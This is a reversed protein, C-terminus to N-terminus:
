YNKDWGVCQFVHEECFIREWDTGGVCAVGTTGAFGHFSLNGDRTPIALRPIALRPIALRPRMNELQLAQAYVLTWPKLNIHCLAALVANRDLLAALVYPPRFLGVLPAICVLPGLTVARKVLGYSRISVGRKGPIHQVRRPTGVPFRCVGFRSDEFVFEYTQVVRYFLAIVVAVLNTAILGTGDFEVLGLIAPEIGVRASMACCSPALLVSQFLVNILGMATIRRERTVFTSLCETPFMDAFNVHPDVRVLPGEVAIDLSAVLPEFLRAGAVLVHARVRALPGVM